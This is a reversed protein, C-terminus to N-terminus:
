AEQDNIVSFRKLGLGIFDIRRMSICRGCERGRFVMVDVAKNGIEIPEKLLNSLSNPPAGYGPISGWARSCNQAPLHKQHEM